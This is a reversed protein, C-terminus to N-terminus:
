YVGLYLTDGILIVQEEIDLCDWEKGAFYTERIEAPVETSQFRRGSYYSLLPAVEWDVAGSRVNIDMYVNPAEPHSYCIASDPVTGVSTVFRGSEREYSYVHELIERAECADAANSRIQELGITYIGKANVLLFVGMVVASVVPLGQKKQGSFLFVIWVGCVSLYSFVPFLTRPAMWIMSSFMHPAFSIGYGIISLSIGLWVIGPHRKARICSVVLAASLLGTVLGMALGLFHMGDVLVRWQGYTLLYLLNRFVVQLSPSRATGPILGGSELARQLGIAFVSASAGLLLVRLLRVLAKKDARLDSQLAALLLGWLVFYGIAAQYFGLSVCLLCFSRVTNAMRNGAFLSRLALQCFVLMGIWHIAVNSFFFMEGFSVNVFAALIFLLTMAKDARSPNQFTSIVMSWLDACAWAIVAMFALTFPLQVSVTNIGLWHMLVEAAAGSPRGLQLKWLANTNDLQMYYDSYGDTSFRDALMVAFAALVLLFSLLFVQTKEKKM